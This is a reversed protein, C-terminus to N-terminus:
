TVPADGYARKALDNMQDIAANRITPDNHYYRARFEPDSQLRTIESKAAQPTASFSNKGADPAGAERFMNGFEAMMKLMTKTGVSREFQNLQDPTLGAKEIAHQTARRALEITDDFKNGWDKQLDLLDNNSQVMAAQDAESQYKTNFENYQKLIGEAQKDNLGQEHFWKGIEPAIKPDMGEKSFKYMNPDAPRGLKEYFKGWDEPAADAKPPVIASAKEGLLTELSSYSKIADNASQWGKTQVVNAYEPAFWSAPAGEGGAGSPTVGPAGGNGNSSAPVGGSAGSNAGAGGQIAAMGSMATVEVM